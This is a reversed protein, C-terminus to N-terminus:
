RKKPAMPILASTVKKYEQFNKNDDWKKELMPIGSVKTILLTITLPTIIGLWYYPVGFTIIWIGWWQTVEGFYNPHRTYRWLGQDMIDGKTKKNRVFESLQYDGVVEFIFGFSWLLVGFYTIPMAGGGGTDLTTLFIPWCMLWMLAGQLMFVKFYSVIPWYKGGEKRMAAYRWDEPKGFSKKLIHLGLRAGWITVLLHVILRFVSPDNTYALLGSSVFVPGIGWAIDAISAKAACLSLAYFMSQFVWILVAGLIAVEWFDGLNM